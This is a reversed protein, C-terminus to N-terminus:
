FSGSDSPSMVSVGSARQHDPAQRSRRRVRLPGKAAHPPTGAECAPERRAHYSDTTAFRRVRRGSGQDPQVEAESRILAHLGALTHRNHLVGRWQERTLQGFLIASLSDASRGGRSDNHHLRPSIFLQLRSIRMLGPLHLAGTIVTPELGGWGAGLRNNFLMLPIFSRSRFEARSKHQM